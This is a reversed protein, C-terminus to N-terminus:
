PPAPAPVIRTRALAAGARGAVRLTLLAAVVALGLALGWWLGVPGYGLPFALAWGGAFGVVWYGFAAYLMPVATDRYGRLAGAAITQVGDAIQFLAALALLPLAIAILERNAPDDLRVYIGVILRPASWMMVAIVAMVAAGGALAVFAARQATSPKGAGLEFAVRVTAAQGIGLPMMFTLSAFNLVIQHAGLADAGFLGMVIGTTAFLGAELAILGGIPLGLRLIERIHDGVRRTLSLPTRRPAIQLVAVLVLPMLLQITATAWGSGATGLAPIGFEGFILVWNLAANAPIALLVVIMVTRARHAAALLARMVGFALFGPVGWRLADLYAGIEAALPPEYGIAALLGGALSLLLMIPGAAVAALVLGAAAVQGAIRPDGAGIARAALPAVASLAQQCVISVTFALAGGLGVASLAAAGLHGVMVTNTLAMAMQALNAAALPAAIPLTARLEARVGSAARFM